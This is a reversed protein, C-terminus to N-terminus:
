LTLSHKLGFVSPTMMESTDERGMPRRVFPIHAASTYSGLLWLARPTITASCGGDNVCEARKWGGMVVTRVIVISNSDVLKKVSDLLPFFLGLWHCDALLIMMSLADWSDGVRMLFPIGGRLTKDGDGNRMEFNHLTPLSM